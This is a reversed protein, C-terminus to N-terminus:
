TGGSIYPRDKDQLSNTGVKTNVNDLTLTNGAAFITAAMPNQSGLISKVGEKGLIVQPVLQLNINKFTVNSGLQIPARVILADCDADTSFKKSAGEIIINKNIFLPLPSKDTHVEYNTYSVTGILKLIQGDKINKLATRINEYPNNITGNGKTLSGEGDKLYVVEANIDSKDNINTNRVSSAYTYPVNSLLFICSLIISISKLIKKNKM